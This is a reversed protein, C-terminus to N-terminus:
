GASSSSSPAWAIPRAKTSAELRLPDRDPVVHPDRRGRHGLGHDRARGLRAGVHEVEAEDPRLHDIERDALEPEIAPMATVAECLGFSYVPSFITRAPASGTPPSDPSSSIRSRACPVPDAARRGCPCPRASRCRARLVDLAHEREDVDLRDLRQLDHDVRRVPHGARHERGHELVQRLELDHAAVELGVAGERVVLRVRQQGLVALEDDGLRELLLASKPTAKSPSASRQKKTSSEPSNTGPSKTVASRASDTSAFSGPAFIM